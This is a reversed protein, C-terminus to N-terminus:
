RCVTFCTLRLTTCGFPVLEVIETRAGEDPVVPNGYPMMTHKYSYFRITSRRPQPVPQQHHSLRIRFSIRRDRGVWSLFGRGIMKRPVALRPNALPRVNQYFLETLM